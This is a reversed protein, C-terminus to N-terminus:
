ATGIRLSVFSEQGQRRVLLPVMEHGEERAEDIVQKAAHPNEVSHLAVSAIVDGPRLDAQAAASGAEVGLVLVGHSDTELGLRERQGVDLSGLTLGTEPLELSGAPGAPAEAAAVKEAELLGTVVTLEIAGRDRWLEVEVEDGAKSAAVLRSLDKFKAVEEGDWRLVIDGAKLGAKAAPSDPEVAAVLAGKLVDLGFGEAIEEGVPQIRVGLWGRAVEGDDGAGVM